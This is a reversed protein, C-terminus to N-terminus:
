NIQFSIGLKDESLAWLRECLAKDFAKDPLPVLGPPGGREEKGTPGIFNGANVDPHLAGYLTPEAGKSPKSMGMIPAVIPALLSMPFPVYRGLDTHSIGPHVVVAKIKRGAKELRDKLEMTFLINAFKSQSYAVMGTLGFLKFGEEYNGEFNLNDFYIDAWERKGALSSVNIIRTEVEQDLKDILLSTLYFHGIHNADFQLELGNATITYPPGMVGANNVLLNLYRYRNGFAEAFDRISQRDVLDLPIFDLKAGPNRAKIKDMAAKAKAESRCALVVTFGEGALGRATELGLGTNAGTVVAIANQDM